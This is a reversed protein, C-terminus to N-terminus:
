ADKGEGNRQMPKVEQVTTDIRGDTLYVFLRKGTEIQEVSNVRKGTETTLYGYGAKLRQLPSVGNLREAKLSLTHSARSLHRHMRDCLMREYVAAGDHRRELLARMDSQLREARTDSGQRMQRIRAAPSVFSLAHKQLQLRTRRTKIRGEMQVFLAQRRRDIEHLVQTIDCVALEAAATPTSARLDAAFDAITVDNEHGVASIVPVKSAFIARAVVEENFAWLDEISGGGRGVIMVDVGYRNLAAIGRAISDAAQEGQVLAPYLVLQVYPNRRKANRIIDRVADGTPSTVIGITKVTKPIEMKYEPSFIGEEELREKLRIFAEYLAGRGAETITKAYLQYHGREVYVEIRGKVEIKKGRSLQFRLGNARDGSFMVCSLESHEDKITFYVHGSGHYKCDSVEGEVHVQRLFADRKFAGALYRNLRSVTLKESM